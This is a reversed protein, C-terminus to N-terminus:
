ASAGRRATRAGHSATPHLVASAEAQTATFSGGSTEVHAVIWQPTTAPAMVTGPHSRMWWGILVGFTEYPSLVTGEDDIFTIREGTPSIMCGVDARVTRSILATEEPVTRNRPRENLGANLPIAVVGLDNLIGPLVTSAQSYDYDILVRFHAAGIAAAD